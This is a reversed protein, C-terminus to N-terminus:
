RRPSRRACRPLTATGRTLSRTLVCSVVRECRSVNPVGACRRCQSLPWWCGNAASTAICVDCGREQLLMATGIGSWDGLDDLLLVRGSIPVGGDLAGDLVDDITRWTRGDVGPLRDSMPVARQFGARAPSAGTAVIVEQAGAAAIWTHDVFTNVRVDVSLQALQRGYWEIHDLVQQRTPQLGALRYRGGIQAGAEAVIVEHGREACVRAAELGAPGAGVVLVTQRRQTPVFRDGGWIHERGASPNILCSIWYDRSRRGWCLQNCSICPRVDHGRGERAKRVLHPDAIQGRVISVMDAHGAAIVDEAAEPTRIHSEAQVLVHSTVQKSARGRVTGRPPGSVAHDADAQLLRLLQGTGCTVYDMLAREDHWAVIEQMSEISLSPDSEPDVNVALGVIFDDGVETRIEELLTASFRVRNEFSGGWRDTRRNSWPTWFQDIVAHYAAFLEVGDFGSSRARGAARVFSDILELVEAETM